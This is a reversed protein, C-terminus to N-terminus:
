QEAMQSNLINKDQLMGFINSLQPTQFGTKRGYHLRDAFTLKLVTRKHELQGNKWIEQPNALFLMTLKFMEAFPRKNKATNQLKEQLVLKERELTDIRKEYAAIVSGTTSEVIRDLLNEIKKEAERLASTLSQKHATDNASQTDWARKFMAQVLDFLTRSPKMESLLSEFQGEIEARRISKGRSECGHRYCYYYAHRAGTKSKSWCATMPHSCDGCLVFGRLPFDGDIDARAAIKPKGHLREQIREFTELTVLGAHKGQRLPINWMKAEVYGAYLVRNLIRNAAEITVMGYRNKPFDQQSELFRAVEAQTQFRGSAYGELATRIISALPEQPTMVKGQGQRKEHRYGIPAPFPWYGDIVRAQQRKLTQEANKERHHQANLAQVNEFYRGDPDNGFTVSPSELVANCNNIADRLDLHVRIDRALRSIDDVIVVFRQKRNKRLYALLGKIGDRDATGGSIGSDKFVQHITYGKWSAYQRCYTEQSEIGQGNRLQAQSSVRCYILADKLDHSYRDFTLM